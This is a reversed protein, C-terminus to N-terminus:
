SHFVLLSYELSCFLCKYHLVSFQFKLFTTIYQIISSIHELLVQSVQTPSILRVTMGSNTALNQAAANAAQKAQHAQQQPSIHVAALFSAFIPDFM